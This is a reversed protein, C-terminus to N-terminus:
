TTAPYASSPRQQWNNKTARAEMFQARLSGRCALISEKLEVCQVCGILVHRPWLPSSLAKSLIPSAMHLTSLFHFFTTKNKQKKETGHACLELDGNTSVRTDLHAGSAFFSDFLLRQPVKFM